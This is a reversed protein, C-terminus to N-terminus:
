ESTLLRLSEGPDFEPCRQIKLIRFNEDECKVSMHFRLALPLVFADHDGPVYVLAEPSSAQSGVAEMFKSLRANMRGRAKRTARRTETLPKRLVLVEQVSSDEEMERVSIPRNRSAGICYLKANVFQQEHEVVWHRNTEQDQFFRKLSHHFCVQLSEAGSLVDAMGHYYHGGCPFYVAAEIKAVQKFYSDVFARMLEQALQRNQGNDSIQARNATLQFCRDRVDVDVTFTRLLPLDGRIGRFFTGADEVVIGSQSLRFPENSDSEAFLRVRYRTEEIGFANDTIASDNPPGSYFDKKPTYLDRFADAIGPPTGGSDLTPTVHEPLDSLLNDDGRQLHWIAPLQFSGNATRLILTCSIRLIHRRLFRLVEVSETGRKLRMRVLTGHRLEWPSPMRVEKFRPFQSPPTNKFVVGDLYDDLVVHLHQGSQGYISFIEVQDALMFYSLTGIGHEAILSTNRRVGGWEKIGRDSYWFASEGVSLFHKDVIEKDM